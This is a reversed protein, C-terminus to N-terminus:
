HDPFQQGRQHVHKLVYEDRDALRQGTQQIKRMLGHCLDPNSPGQVNEGVVTVLSKKLSRKLSDYALSIKRM